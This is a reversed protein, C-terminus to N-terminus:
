VNLFKLNWLGWRYVLKTVSGYDLELKFANSLPLGIAQCIMSRIPGAHAIILVPSTEVQPLTNFFLTAREQLESFSEGGPPRQHVFDNM